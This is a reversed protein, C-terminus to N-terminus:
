DDVDPRVLHTFNKNMATIARAQLQAAKARLSEATKPDTVNLLKAQEYACMSQDFLGLTKEHVVSRSYDKKEALGEIIKALAQQHYELAIIKNALKKSYEQYSKLAKALIKIQKKNKMYLNVGEGLACVDQILM